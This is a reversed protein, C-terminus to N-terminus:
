FQIELPDNAVSWGQTLHEADLTFLFFCFCM